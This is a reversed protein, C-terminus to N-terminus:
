VSANDAQHTGWIGAEERRKIRARLSDLCKNLYAIAPESEVGLCKNLDDIASENEVCPFLSHKHTLEDLCADLVESLYAGNRGHEQVSGRQWAIAFGIGYSQGGDPKGETRWHPFSSGKQVLEDLCAELVEILYAGNRGQEQISGRQWAIAFGIGYSQGGDPKGETVWHHSNWEANQTNETNM